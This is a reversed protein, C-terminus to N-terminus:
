IFPLAKHVLTAKKQKLTNFYSKKIAISKYLVRCLIGQMM